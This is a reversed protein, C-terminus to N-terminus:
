RCGRRRTRERRHPTARHALEAVPEEGVLGVGIRKPPTAGPMVGSIAAATLLSILLWSRTSTADLTRTVEAKRLVM